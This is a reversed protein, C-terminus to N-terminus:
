REMCSQVRRPPAARMLSPGDLGRSSGARKLQSISNAYTLTGTKAAGSGGPLDVKVLCSRSQTVGRNEPPLRSNPRANKDEEQEDVVTELARRMETLTM